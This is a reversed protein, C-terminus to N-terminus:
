LLRLEQFYKNIEEILAHPSFINNIEEINKCIKKHFTWPFYFLKIRETM